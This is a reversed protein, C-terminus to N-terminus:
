KLYSKSCYQKYGILAWELDTTVVKQVYVPTGMVMTDTITGSLGPSRRIRLVDATTVMWKGVIDTPTEPITPPVEIVTGLSFSDEFQEATLFCINLDLDDEGMGMRVGDGINDDEIDGDSAYQWEWVKGTWGKSTAYAPISALTRDENYWAMWLPRKGLAKAFTSLYGAALYVGNTKGNLRDMEAMFGVAVAIVRSMVTDIKPAFSGASEIDLWVISKDNDDKILGWVYQAQKKGWEGDDMGNVTYGSMHNSYYDMYHYARRPLIGKAGKWNSVFADDETVGYSTRIAVYMAGANKAKTFELPKDNKLNYQSVDIGRIPYQNFILETM